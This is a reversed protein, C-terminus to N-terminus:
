MERQMSAIMMRWVNASDNMVFEFPVQPTLHRIAEAGGEKMRDSPERLAEVVARVQPLYDRWAEGGDKGDLEALAHAAREIPKM